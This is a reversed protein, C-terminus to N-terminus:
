TAVIEGNKDAIAIPPLPSPAPGGQVSGDSISFHSQHCPCIISGNQIQAVTCGQHTCVPSFAKFVGKTPQTVVAQSLIVGGGVPVESAKVLPTESSSSSTASSQTSPSTPQATPASSGCAALLPAGIGVAALGTIVDRRRPSQESLQEM